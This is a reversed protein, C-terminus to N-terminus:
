EMSEPLPPLRDDYRRKIYGWTVRKPPRDKPPIYDPPLDETVKKTPNKRKTAM